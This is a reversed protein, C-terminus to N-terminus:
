AALREAQREIGKKLGLRVAIDHSRGRLAKSEGRLVQYVLNRSFGNASAWEAISIGSELFQRKVRDRSKLM